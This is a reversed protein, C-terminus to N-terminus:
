AARVASTRMGERASADASRGVYAQNTESAVESLCGLVANTDLNMDGALIFSGPQRGRSKEDVRRQAQIMVNKMATVKFQERASATKGPVVSSRLMSEASGSIIHLNVVSTLRGTRKCYFVTELARRWYKTKVRRDASESFCDITDHSIEAAATDRIATMVNASSDRHAVWQSDLCSDTVYQM